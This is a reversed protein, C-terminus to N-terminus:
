FVNYKSLKNFVENYVENESLSIKHKTEKKIKCKM